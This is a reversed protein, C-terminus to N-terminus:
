WFNMYDAQEIYEACNFCRPASMSSGQVLLWRLIQINSCVLGIFIKSEGAAGYDKKQWSIVFSLQGKEPAKYGEIYLLSPSEQCFLFCCFCRYM